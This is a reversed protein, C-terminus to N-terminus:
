QAIGKDALNSVCRILSPIRLLYLHRAFCMDFVINLLKLALWKVRM